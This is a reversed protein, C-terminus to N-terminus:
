ILDHSAETSPLSKGLFARQLKHRWDKVKVCDPDSALPDDDTPEVASPKSEPQKPKEVKPKAASKPQETKAKEVKQKKAVKKEPAARKRKGGKDEEEAEEEELEDVGEEAEDAQRRAEVMADDWETPDRATEYAERLGGSAKRHPEALWARISESSLPQIEKNNLWSYDGAPFFQVCYIHPSKGPRAARVKPPPGQLQLASPRLDMTLAGRVDTGVRIRERWPPYGKLRALVTEGATFAKSEDPKKSGGAASARPKPRAVKKNSAPQKSKSAPKSSTPAPAPTPQTTETTEAPASPEAPPAAVPEEAM